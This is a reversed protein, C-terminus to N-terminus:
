PGSFAPASSSLQALPQLLIECRVVCAVSALRPPSPAAQSSHVSMRLSSMVISLLLDLTVMPSKGLIALHLSTLPHAPPM